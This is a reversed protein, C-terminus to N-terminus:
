VSGIKCLCRIPHCLYLKVTTCFLTQADAYCHNCGLNCNGGVELWLFDLSHQEQVVYDKYHVVLADSLKILDLNQLWEFFSKHKEDIEEVPLRQDIYYALQTAAANLSYVDETRFDYIAACRAGYIIQVDQCWDFYTAKEM